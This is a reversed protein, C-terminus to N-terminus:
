VVSKRDGYNMYIYDDRMASMYKWGEANPGLIESYDQYVPELTAPGGTLSGSGSSVAAGSGGGCAAAALVSFGAAGFLKYFEKRGESVEERAQLVDDRYQANMNHTYSM